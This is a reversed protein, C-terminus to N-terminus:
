PQFTSNLLGVSSLMGMVGSALATILTRDVTVEHPQLPRGRTALALFPFAAAFADVCFVPTAVAPEADCGDRGARFLAAVASADDM